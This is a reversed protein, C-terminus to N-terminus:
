DGIAAKFQSIAPFIVDDFITNLFSPGFSAGTNFEAFLGFGQYDSYERPLEIEFQSYITGNSDIVKKRRQVFNDISMDAEYVAGIEPITIKVRTAKSALIAKNPELFVTALVKPQAEVLLAIIEGRKLYQGERVNINRLEGAQVTEMFISNGKNSRVAAFYEGSEVAGNPKLFELIGSTNVALEKGLIRVFGIESRTSNKEASLAFIAFILAFVVVSLSLVQAFKTLANLSNEPVYWSKSNNTFVSGEGLGWDILKSLSARNAADTPLTIETSSDLLKVDATLEASSIVKERIVNVIIPTKGEPASIRSSLFLKGDQIQVSDYTKGGLEIEIRGSM